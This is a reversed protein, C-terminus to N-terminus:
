KQFNKAIEFKRKIALFEKCNGWSIIVKLEERIDTALL